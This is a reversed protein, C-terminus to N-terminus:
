LAFRISVILPSYLIYDIPWVRSDQNHEYCISTDKLQKVSKHKVENRFFDTWNSCWNGKLFQKGGSHLLRSKLKRQHCAMSAGRVMYVVCSELQVGLLEGRMPMKNNCNNTYKFCELIDIITESDNQMSWKRICTHHIELHKAWCRLSWSPPALRSQENHNWEEATRCPHSHDLYFYWQKLEREENLKLLDKIVYKQTKDTLLPCEKAM